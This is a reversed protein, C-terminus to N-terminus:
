PATSCRNCTSASALRQKLRRQSKRQKIPTGKPVDLTVDRVAEDFLRIIQHLLHVADRLHTLSLGAQKLYQGYTVDRDTL